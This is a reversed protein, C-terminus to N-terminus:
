AFVTVTQRSLAILKGNEDWLRARSHVYGEAAFETEALYQWWQQGNGSVAQPMFEVTWTMSSAPAPTKLMPLVAPPWADVIALLDAYGLQERAGHARVWGGIGAKEASSYPLSGQAWRLDYHQIFDPTLGKMYPLQLSEEPSRFTPAACENLNIASERAHGFSALLVAVVQGNQIARCEGQTVSKGQRFVEAHCHLPGDSAPAVFNITASRLPVAQAVKQELARYMLAAVLGGFLARGQSWGAPAHVHGDDNMTTLFPHLAM